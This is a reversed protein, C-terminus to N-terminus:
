PAGDALGVSRRTMLRDVRGLAKLSHRSRWSVGFPADMPRVASPTHFVPMKFSYGGAIHRAKATAKLCPMSRRGTTEVVSGSAESMMRHCARCQVTYLLCMPCFKAEQPRPQSNVAGQVPRLVLLLSGLLFFIYIYITIRLLHKYM